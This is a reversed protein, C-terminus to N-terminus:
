ADDPIGCGFNTQTVEAAVLANHHEQGTVTSGVWTAHDADFIARTMGHQKLTEDIDVTDYSLSNMDGAVTVRKTEPRVGLVTELGGRRGLRYVEFAKQRLQVNVTVATKAMKLLRKQKKTMDEIKTNDIFNKIPTTSRALAAEYTAAGNLNAPNVNWTIAFGTNTRAAGIANFLKKYQAENMKDPDEVSDLYNPSVFSTPRTTDGFGVGNRVPDDKPEWLHLLFEALTCRGGARSGVCGPAITFPGGASEEVLYAIWYVARHL